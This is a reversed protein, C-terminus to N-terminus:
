LNIANLALIRPSLGMAFPAEPSATAPLPEKLAVSEGDAGDIAVEAFGCVGGGAGVLGFVLELDCADSVEGGVLEGEFLAEDEIYRPDRDGEEELGGVELEVVDFVELLGEVRNQGDWGIGFVGAAGGEFEVAAEADVTRPGQDFDIAL